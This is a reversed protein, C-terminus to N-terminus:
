IVAAWIAGQSYRQGGCGFTTYDHAQRIGFGKKAHTYTGWSQDWLGFGACEAGTAHGNSDTGYDCGWTHSFTGGIRQQFNAGTRGGNINWTYGCMSYGSCATGRALDPPNSMGSLRTLQTTSSRQMLQLLTYSGRDEPQSPQVITVAGAGTNELLLRTIPVTSFAGFKANDSASSGQSLLHGNHTTASTWTSHGYYFTSDDMVRMLLTWAGGHRGSLDCYEDGTPM